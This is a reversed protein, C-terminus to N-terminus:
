TLIFLSLIQKNFLLRLVKNLIYSNQSHISKVKLLKSKTIESIRKSHEKRQNIERSLKRM